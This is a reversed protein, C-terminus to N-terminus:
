ERVEKKQKSEKEIEVLDKFTLPEIFGLENLKVVQEYNLNKIEEGAVFNGINTAFDKKAIIKKM